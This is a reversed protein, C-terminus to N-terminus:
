PYEEPVEDTPFIVIMFPVTFAILEDYPQPIPLPMVELLPRDVTPERRTISANTLAVPKDSYGPIPGEPAALSNFFRVIEPTEKKVHLESPGILGTFADKITMASADTTKRVFDPWNNSFDGEDNPFKLKLM